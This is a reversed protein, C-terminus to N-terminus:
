KVSAIFSIEEMVATKSFLKKKKKEKRGTIEIDGAIIDIINCLRYIIDM